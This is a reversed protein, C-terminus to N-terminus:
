LWPLRARDDLRTLGAHRAALRAERMEEETVRRGLEAFRGAQGCPRYQDMLNVYTETSLERALFEVVSSTGALDDPMVLHRVLLGRRAIGASDLELDGVQRHMERLADRNVEPYDPADCFRRASPTDAFKADPMYIDVVGDLLQLVDVPDYGGTNYVLPLRLGAAAAVGLAEMIMPVVHTPTVVNINHCGVEQLRTMIGAIATADAVRGTASMSIDDNQCFVCRLNCGGFFLTGSGGRGVLPREEGFHPSASAVLAVAGIGCTGVEGALRDVGCRRPCLDCAALRARLAEVRAALEGASALAVYRPTEELM